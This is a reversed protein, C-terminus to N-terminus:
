IHILSLPTTGHLERGPELVITVQVGEGPATSAIQVTTLGAAGDGLLAPLPWVLLAFAALGALTLGALVPIAVRVRRPRPPKDFRPM